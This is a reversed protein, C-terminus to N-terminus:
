GDTLACIRSLQDVSTGVTSKAAMGGMPWCLRSEPCLSCKAVSKQRQSFGCAAWRAWTLGSLAERGNAEKLVPEFFRDWLSQAFVSLRGCHGIM